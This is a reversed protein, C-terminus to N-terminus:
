ELPGADVSNPHVFETISHAKKPLFVLFRFLNIVISALETAAAKWMRLFFTTVKGCTHPSRTSHNEDRFGYYLYREIVAM